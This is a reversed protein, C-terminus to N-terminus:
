NLLRPLKMVNKQPKHPKMREFTKVTKLLTTNKRQNYVRSLNKDPILLFFRQDPAAKFKPKRLTEHVKRPRDFNPHKNEAQVLIDDIYTIIKKTKVHPAFHFTM